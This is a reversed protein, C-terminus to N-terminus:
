TIDKNNKKRRFAYMKSLNEKVFNILYDQNISRYNDEKLYEGRKWLYAKLTSGVINSKRSLSLQDICTSLKLFLNRKVICAM